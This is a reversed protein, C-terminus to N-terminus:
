STLTIYNNLMVHAMSSAVDVDMLLMSYPVDVDIPMGHSTRDQLLCIWLSELAENKSVLFSIWYIILTIKLETTHM